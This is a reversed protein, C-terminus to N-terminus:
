HKKVNANQKTYFPSLLLPFHENKDIIQAILISLESLVTLSAPPNSIFEEEIKEQTFETGQKESNDSSIMISICAVVRFSGSIEVTRTLKAVCGHENANLVSVCDFWSLGKSEEVSSESNSLSDYTVSLIKLFQAKIHKNDM